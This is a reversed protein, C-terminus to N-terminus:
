DSMRLSGCHVCVHVRGSFLVCLCWCLCWSVGVCRCLARRACCQNFRLLTQGTQLVRIHVICLFVCCVCTPCCWVLCCVDSIAVDRRREKSRTGHEREAGGERVRTNHHENNVSRMENNKHMNVCIPYSPQLMRCACLCAAAVCCLLSYMNVGHGTHCACSYTSACGCAMVLLM